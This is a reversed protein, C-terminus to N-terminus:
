RAVAPPRCNPRAPPAPPAVGSSGCPRRPSSPQARDRPRRLATPSAARSRPAGDQRWGAPPGRHANTRRLASAQRAIKAEVSSAPVPNTWAAGLWRRPRGGFQEHVPRALMTIVRCHGDRLSTRRWVHAGEGPRCTQSQGPCHALARVGGDDLFGVPPRPAPPAPAANLIQGDPPREDM